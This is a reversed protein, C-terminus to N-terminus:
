GFTIVNCAVFCRADIRPFKVKSHRCVLYIACMWCLVDIVRRTCIFCRFCRCIFSSAGLFLGSASQELLFRNYVSTYRSNTDINVTPPARFRNEGSSSQGDFRVSRFKVQIEGRNDCQLNYFYRLRFDGRPRHTAKAFSIPASVCTRM